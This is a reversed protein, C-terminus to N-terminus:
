VEALFGEVLRKELARTEEWHEDLVRAAEYGTGRRDDINIQFHANTGVYVGLPVVRVSPGIEMRVYGPVDARGAEVTMSRLGVTEGTSRAIWQEGDFMPQWFEKPLFRDGLEHWASESEVRFHADSNIGIADVPTEPLVDFVGRAVDRLDRERGEEVTSFQAQGLTVQVILWDASFAAVERSLLLQEQTAASEAVDASLLEKEAFWRPHFIAPNFSGVAVLSVGGLEVTRPV